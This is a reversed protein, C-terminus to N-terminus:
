SFAIKRMKRYAWLFPRLPIYLFHFPKPLPLIEVDEPYPYLFSLLFLCKQRWDKLSYLHHKHFNTVDEPVPDTHLNIRNELYYVAQQALHMTSKSKILRQMEHNIESHLLCSALLLGQGVPKKYHYKALKQNVEKWDIELKILEQIDVLWR